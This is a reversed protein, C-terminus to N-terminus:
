IKNYAILTGVTGDGSYLTFNSIPFCPSQETFTADTPLVPLTLAEQTSVPSSVAKTMDAMLNDSTQLYLLINQYSSTDGSFQLMRDFTTVAGPFYIQTNGIRATGPYIVVSSDSVHIDFNHIGTTLM